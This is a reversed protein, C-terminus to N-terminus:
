RNQCTIEKKIIKVYNRSLTLRLTLNGIIYVYIYQVVNVAIMVFFLNTMGIIYYDAIM